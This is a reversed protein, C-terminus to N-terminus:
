KPGSASYCATWCDFTNWIASCSNYSASCAAYGWCYNWGAAWCSPLCSGGVWWHHASGSDCPTCARRYCGQASNWTCTTNCSSSNSPKPSTCFSDSVYSWQSSRCQYTYPMSWPSWLCTRTVTQSWCTITCASWSSWYVWWSCSGYWTHVWNYTVCSHTNCSQTESPKAQTTCLWDAIDAGNANRCVVTQTQTWWWCTQSCWSWDWLAHWTNERCIWWIDSYWSNCSVLSCAWWGSWEWSQTWVGNPMSCSQVSAVVVSNEVIVWTEQQVIEKAIDDVLNNDNPNIEILKDVESSSWESVTWSYAQQLKLILNKRATSDWWTLDSVSWSYVILSWTNVVNMNWWWATDYDSDKYSDPLNYKGHVVLKWQRILEEIDQISMDWNIITPVALIYMTTGIQIWITKQNYYWKVYAIARKTGAYSSEVNSLYWNLDTEFIAWLQYESKKHTRSYTYENWTLPDVPISTLRKLEQSVSEWITWQHWVVSWSFNVPLSNSPLPYKNRDIKYYELAKSIIKLDSLRTSDRASKAYWQYSMFWITGLIAVITIVVILEM